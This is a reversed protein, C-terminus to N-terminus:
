LQHTRFQLRVPTEDNPRATGATMPRDVKGHRHHWPRLHRASPILFLEAKKIRRLECEMVGTEPPNREDDASNIALLTAEMRDLDPAANYARSSDWAYFSTTPM